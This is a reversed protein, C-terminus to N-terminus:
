RVEDPTVRRIGVSGSATIDIRFTDETPEFPWGLHWWRRPRAVTRFVVQGAQTPERPAPTAQQGGSGGPPPPAGPGRRTPPIPPAVLGQARLDATKRGGRGALELQLAKPMAAFGRHAKPKPETPSTSDTM